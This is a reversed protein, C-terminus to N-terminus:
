QSSEPVYGMEELKRAAEALYHLLEAPTEFEEKEIHELLVEIPIGRWYVGKLKEKLDEKKVPFDTGKLKMLVQAAWSIGVRGSGSIQGSGALKKAAEALYHLVEAPTKFENVEIEDILKEVPVGKWYLGKLREKLEDKSIPFNAGKLRKLVEAAWSIGRHAM